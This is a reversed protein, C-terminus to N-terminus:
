HCKQGPHYMYKQFICPIESEHLFKSNIKNNKEEFLECKPTVKQGGTEALPKLQLKAAAYIILITLGLFYPRFGFLFRSTTNWHDMKLHSLMHTEPFMKKM